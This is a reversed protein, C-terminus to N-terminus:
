ELMQAVPSAAATGVPTSSPIQGWSAGTAIWDPRCTPSWIRLTTAPFGVLAKLNLFLPMMAVMPRLAATALSGLPGTMLPVM